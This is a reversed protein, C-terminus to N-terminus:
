IKVSRCKQLSSQQGELSMVLVITGISLPHQNDHPSLFNRGNSVPHREVNYVLKTYDMTNNGIPMM